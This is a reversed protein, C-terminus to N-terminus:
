FKFEKNINMINEIYCFTKPLTYSVYIASVGNKDMTMFLKNRHNM